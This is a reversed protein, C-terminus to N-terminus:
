KSRLFCTMDRLNLLRLPETARAAIAPTDRRAMCACAADETATVLVAAVGAAVLVDVVGAAFVLVVVGGTVVGAAVFVEVVGTVVGAAVFVDVGGAALEVGLGRADVAVFDAIVGTAVVDVARGVGGDVDVVAVARGIL